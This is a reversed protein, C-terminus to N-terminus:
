KLNDVNTITLSIHAPYLIAIVFRYWLAVHCHRDKSRVDIMFSLALNTFSSGVRSRTELCIYVLPFGGCILKMCTIYAKM